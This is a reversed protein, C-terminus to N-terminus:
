KKYVGKLFDDFMVVIEIFLDEAPSKLPFGEFFEKPINQSTNKERFKRRGM